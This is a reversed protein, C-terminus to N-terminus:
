MISRIHLAIASQWHQSHPPPSSLAIPSGQRVRGEGGRERQVLPHIASIISLSVPNFHKMPKKWYRMALIIIFHAIFNFFLYCLELSSAGKNVNVSCPVSCLAPHDNPMNWNSHAACHRPTHNVPHTHVCACVSAHTSCARVTGEAYAWQVNAQM